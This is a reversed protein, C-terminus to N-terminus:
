ACEPASTTGNTKVSFRRNEYDERALAKIIRQGILSEQLVSFLHANSVQTQHSGRRTRKGLWLILFVAVPFVAMALLALRWERYFIMPSPGPRHLLGQLLQHDSWRGFEPAPQRRLHTPEDPHRHGRRRFLEPAPAPHFRLAPGAPHHDHRQRHLENPLQPHLVHRGELCLPGRDIAAASLADGDKQRLLRRGPGTEGPLGVPRHPGFRGAHGRHRRDHPFEHPKLYTLLRRYLRLDDKYM